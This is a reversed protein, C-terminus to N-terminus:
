WVHASGSVKTVDPPDEGDLARAIFSPKANVEIRRGDRFVVTAGDPSPLIGIIESVAVYDNDIKLFRTQM